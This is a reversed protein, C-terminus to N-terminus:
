PINEKVLHVVDLNKKQIDPDQEMEYITMWRFKKGGDGQFQQNKLRAPFEKIEAKYLIHDYYRMTNHSYSYKQHIDEAM